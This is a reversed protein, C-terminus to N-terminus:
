LLLSCVKGLIDDLNVNLLVLELVNVIIVISM